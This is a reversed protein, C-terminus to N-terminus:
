GTDRLHDIAAVAARVGEALVEHPVFGQQWSPIRAKIVDDVAKGAAAVEAASMDKTTM